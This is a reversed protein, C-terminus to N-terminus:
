PRPDQVFTGHSAWAIDDVALWIDDVMTSPTGGTFELVDRHLHSQDVYGAEAAVRAAGLGASLRHAAHDFRILRAARKPPMGIQSRFRSWLRKRSWGIEVALEDVRVWGRNVVIRQWVWAVEPDVTPGTARRRVLAADILAFREDWSHTESLRERIGEADRGWLDDLAVVAQEMESPSVGLVTQAVVPTLRVQVCEINEGRVRVAPAIGAVLSGRQSRGATDEIILPGDGFEFVVTVAPHPVSQLDFPGSGRDHFGAMSVGPVRSPQQPRAVGWGDSADRKVGTRRM